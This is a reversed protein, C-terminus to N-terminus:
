FLSFADTVSKLHPGLIIIFLVPLNFLVLPLILISPLRHALKEAHALMEHKLNTSIQNLSQYSSTGHQINQLIVNVVKSLTPSPVRDDLKKLCVSADPILLLDDCLLALEEKMINQHISASQTIAKLAHRINLGADLCILLLDIMLPISSEINRVRKKILYILIIDLLFYGIATLAAATLIFKLQLSELHIEDHKFIYWAGTLFLITVIIKFGVYAEHIKKNTIGARLLKVVPKFILTKLHEFEQEALTIDAKIWDSLYKKKTITVFGIGSVVITALIYPWIQM